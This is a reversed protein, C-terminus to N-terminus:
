SVNSTRYRKVASSLRLSEGKLISISCLEYLRDEIASGIRKTVGQNRGSTYLFNGVANIPVNSTILTPKEENTRYDIVAHLLEAVFKTSNHACLDDLLLVRPRTLDDINEKNNFDRAKILFRSISCYSVDFISKTILHSIFTMALLSKGTGSPGYIYPLRVFEGTKVYIDLYSKLLKLLKTQMDNMPVISDLTSFWVKKPLGSIDFQRKIAAKATEIEMKKIEESMKVDDIDSAAIRRRLQKLSETFKVKDM